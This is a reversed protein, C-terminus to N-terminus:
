RDAEAFFHRVLADDISQMTEDDVVRGLVADLHNPDSGYCSCTASICVLINEPLALGAAWARRDCVTDVTAPEYEDADFLPVINLYRQKRAYTPNAVVIAYWTALQDALIPGLQILQGRLSGLATGPTHATGLGIGLASRLERRVAPMEDLVRGIPQGLRLIEETVRRSPYVYTAERLGTVAFAPGAPDILVNPSGLDAETGQTSCYALTILDSLPDILSVVLHARDKPDGGPDEEAPLIYLNGQEV